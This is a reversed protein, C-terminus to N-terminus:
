SRDPGVVLGRMRLYEQLLDVFQRAGIEALEPIFSLAIVIDVGENKLLSVKQAPDSLRPLKLSPSLVDRPHQLFTVVGSLRDQQKALEVLKGILYKHGLHVGDFVGITLLMDKKPKFHALEEDLLMAETGM